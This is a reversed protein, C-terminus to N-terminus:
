DDSAPRITLGSDQWRRGIKPRQPTGESELSDPGFNDRSPTDPGVAQISDRDTDAYALRSKRAPTTADAQQELKEVNAETLAQGPMQRVQPIAGEDSGGAAVILKDDRLSTAKEEAANRSAIRDGESETGPLTLHHSPTRALLSPRILTALAPKPTGSSTSPIANDALPHVPAPRTGPSIEDGQPDVFDYRLAENCDSGDHDEDVSHRPVRVQGARQQVAWRCLMKELTKGKVPKSLYDDMGAKHCKEKDGQIASATMAVIPIDKAMEVFPTHHRLIHTAQYGDMIPM